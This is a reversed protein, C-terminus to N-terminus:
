TACPTDYFRHWSHNGPSYLCNLTASSTTLEEIVDLTYGIIKKPENDADDEDTEMKEVTDYKQVSDILSSVDSAEWLHGGKKGLYKLDQLVCLKVM